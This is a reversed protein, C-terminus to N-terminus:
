GFRRVSGSNCVNKAHATGVPTLGGVRATNIGHEVLQALCVVLTNDEGECVKM